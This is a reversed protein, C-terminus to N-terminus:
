LKTPLPPTKDKLSLPQFLSSSIHTFTSFKQRTPKSPKKTSFSKYFVFSFDLAQYSPRVGAEFEQPAM